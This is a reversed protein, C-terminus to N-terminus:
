SKTPTTKCLRAPNENDIQDDNEEDSDELDSEVYERDTFFCRNQPCTMEHRCKSALACIEKHATKEDMFGKSIGQLRTLMCKMNIVKQTNAKCNLSQLSNEAHRKLMHSNCDAETTFIKDCSKCQIGSLETTKVLKLKLAENEDALEKKEGTLNKIKEEKMKINDDKEKIVADRIDIENKLSAIIEEFKLLKAKLDGPESNNLSAQVQVVSKHNFLCIDGFKCKNRRFYKCPKPHRKLCKSRECEIKDCIEEFHHFKCETKFRCYGNDHYSCIIKDSNLIKLKRRM